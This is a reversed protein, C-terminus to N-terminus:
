YLVLDARPAAAPPLTHACCACPGPNVRWCQSSLRGVPWADMEWGGRQKGQVRIPLWLSPWRSCRDESSSGDSNPKVAPWAQIQSHVNFVFTNESEGKLDLQEDAAQLGILLYHFSPMEGAIPHVLFGEHQGLNGKRQRGQDKRRKRMGEEEGGEQM